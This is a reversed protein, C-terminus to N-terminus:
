RLRPQAAASATRGVAIFTEPHKQNESAGFISRGDPMWSRM